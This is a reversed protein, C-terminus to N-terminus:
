TTAIMTPLVPINPRGGPVPAYRFDHLSQGYGKMVVIDRAQFAYKGIVGTLYRRDDHLGHVALLRVWTKQFTHLLKTVLTASEEHQILDDRTEPKM